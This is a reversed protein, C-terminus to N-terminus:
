SEFLDVKKELAKLNRRIKYESKITSLVNCVRNSFGSIKSISKKIKTKTDTDHSAYPIKKGNNVSYGWVKAIKGNQYKRIEYHDKVKDTKIAVNSLLTSKIKEKGDIVLTYITKNKM